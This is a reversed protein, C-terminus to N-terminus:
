SGDPRSQSAHFIIRAMDMDMDMNMDMDMDMGMGTPPPPRAGPGARPRLDGGGRGEAWPNSSLGLTLPWLGCPAALKLCCDVRANHWVEGGWVGRTAERLPVPASPGRMIGMATFARALAQAAAQVQDNHPPAAPSSNPLLPGCTM